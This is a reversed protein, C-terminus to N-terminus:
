RARHAATYAPGNRRGSPPPVVAPAPAPSAKERTVPHGVNPALAPTQPWRERLREVLYFEPHNEEAQLIVCEEM